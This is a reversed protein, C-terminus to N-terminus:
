QREDAGMDYGGGVPRSQNDIDVTTPSSPDAIDIGPSGAALHYDGAGAGVFTPAVSINGEGLTIGGVSSYRVNCNGGVDADGAPKENNVVINSTCAVQANGFGCDIGSGSLIAPSQNDAVTCHRIIQPAISFGNDIVIGGAFDSPNISKNGNKVIVSNELIFDTSQMLLGGASNNSLTSREMRISSDEAFIGLLSSGRVSSATFVLLSGVIDLGERENDIVESGFFSLDCNLAAVGANDNDRITVSHFEITSDQCRIGAGVGGGNGNRFILDHIELNSSGSVDFAPGFLFGAPFVQAGNGYITAELNSAELVEGGIYNGPAMAITRRSGQIKAFAGLDGDLHQCAASGPANGCVPGDSGLGVDAHIVDAEAVCQGLEMDCVGSGCQEHDDCAKCTKSQLDCVPMTPSTCDFSRTCEYCRGDVGCIPESSDKAACEADGSSGPICATCLEGTCIPAVDGCQASTTCNTPQADPLGADQGPNNPDAICTRGVGDSAPFSGNLDCFPRAPDTCPTTDDCYLGDRKTCASSVLVFALLAFRLAQM